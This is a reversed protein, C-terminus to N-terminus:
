VAVEYLVCTKVEGIIDQVEKDVRSQFVGGLIAIVAGFLLLVSLTCVCLIPHSSCCGQRKKGTGVLSQLETEGDQSM